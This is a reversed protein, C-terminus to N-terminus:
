GLSGLRKPDGMAVIGSVLTTFILPVVLMKILRIFVDGM